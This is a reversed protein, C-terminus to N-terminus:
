RINVIRDLFEVLNKQADPVVMSRDDRSARPLPWGGPHIAVNKLGDM